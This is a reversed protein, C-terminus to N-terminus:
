TPVFVARTGEELWGGVVGGWFFCAGVEYGALTFVSAQSAMQRDSLGHGAAGKAALLLGLFSGPAVGVPRHGVSTSDGGAAPAPKGGRRAAIARTDSILQLSTKRM